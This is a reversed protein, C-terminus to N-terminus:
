QPSASRSLYDKIAQLLRNNDEPNLICFRFFEGNLSKFSSCDRIMLGRRICFEFLDGSHDTPRTLEMLFFNAYADYVKLGEIQETEKQIRIRESHILDRTKKIYDKDSFFFEGALAGVHNLSWPNQLVSLKFLLEPNGSIGYGLRLGPAAYFKSVGRLVMLNQFQDTLSVASIGSIDPAFEVYTEDIMVFINQKQCYELISVLEQVKLASSTPNNPNCLILMDFSQDLAQFFDALDLQFYNSAKLHYEEQSANTLSLERSYESYTPGLLMAKKPYVQEIVLSIMETSGNGVVIHEMPVNCYAAIASRLSKYDRDPYTSCALDLNSILQEKVTASLGLPNVNSGFNVISELPVHYYESVKELDSGHFEPKTNMYVIEERFVM